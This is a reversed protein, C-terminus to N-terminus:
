RRCINPHLVCGTPMTRYVASEPMISAYKRSLDTTVTAHFSKPSARGGRWQRYCFSPFCMAFFYKCMATSLLRGLSHTLRPNEMKEWLQTYLAVFEQTDHADLSMKYHNSVDVKQMLLKDLEIKPIYDINSFAIMAARCDESIELCEGISNPLLLLLDNAEMVYDNLNVRIRM